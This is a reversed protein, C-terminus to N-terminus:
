LPCVGLLGSMGGTGEWYHAYGEAVGRIVSVDRLLGGIISM